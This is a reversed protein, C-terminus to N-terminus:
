SIEGKPRCRSTVDCPPREVQGVLSVLQQRRCYLKMASVSRLRCESTFPQSAVFPQRKTKLRYERTSGFSRKLLSRVRGQPTNPMTKGTPGSVRSATGVSQLRQVAPV